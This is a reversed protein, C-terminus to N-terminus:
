VPDAAVLWRDLQDVGDLISSWDRRWRVDLAESPQCLTVAEYGLRTVLDAIEPPATRLPASTAAVSETKRGRELAVLARRLRTRAMYAEDPNRGARRVAELLQRYYATDSM